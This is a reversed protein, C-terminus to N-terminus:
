TSLTRRSAGVHSFFRLAIQDSLGFTASAIRDLLTGLEEIGEPSALLVALDMERLLPLMPRLPDEPLPGFQDSLRDIYDRIGAVQFIVSRPNGPDLLLLDFVPLREPRAMYRSRYTVISDALDLLWELGSEPPAQLAHRLSLWLFQLREIRRGLSLLRWGQDRTMGDLAFGALTMLSLVTRDLLDFATGIRVRNARARALNRTLRNITRWNDVSLRERLQFAVGSLQRLNSALTTPREDNFLADLLAEETDAEGPASEPEDDAEGPLLGVRGCLGWIATWEPGGQADSQDILRSLAVRLLRAVNDCREAYRGFWFLNEVVRSSLNAGSRVLDQPGIARRLLSFTSVPGSSLVWTDKSLGGRQMSLVRMDADSGVRTLGGPMVVYGDPSACAFVRLGIVRANLRRPHSRDWVPAQSLQVWEQAVYNYPRARMEAILAKRRVPTLDSGFIAEFRQQPFASKIVLNSLKELADELAAPEGCWWTAVSPM